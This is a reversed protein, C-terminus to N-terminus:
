LDKLATAGATDVVDTQSLGQPPKNNVQAPPTKSSVGAQTNKMSLMNLGQKTMGNSIFESFQAQDMKQVISAVGAPGLTIINGALATKPVPTTEEKIGGQLSARKQQLEAIKKQYGAIQQDLDAIQPNITPQTPQQVQTSSTQQPPAQGVSPTPIANTIDEELHKGGFQMPHQTEAEMEAPSMGLKAGLSTFMTNRINQRWKDYHNVHSDQLKKAKAHDDLEMLQKMRAIAEETTYCEACSKNITEEVYEQSVGPYLFYAASRVAEGDVEHARPNVLAKEQPPNTAENMRTEVDHERWDDPKTGIPAKFLAVGSGTGCAGPASGTGAGCNEEIVAKKYLGLFLPNTNWVLTFDGADFTQEANPLSDITENSTPQAPVLEQIVAEAGELTIKQIYKKAEEDHFTIIEQYSPEPAEKQPQYFTQNLQKKYDELSLM